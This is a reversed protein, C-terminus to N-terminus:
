VVRVNWSRLAPALLGQTLPLPAGHALSRIGRSFVAVSPRDTFRSRYLLGDVSPMNTHVFEAFYQGDAHNSYNAVDSPVGYRSANGATLDLLTVAEDTVTSINVAIRSVYDSPSLVRAPDLDFRDRILTEYAATALDAAAYIVRFPPNAPGAPGASPVSSFRSPGSSAGLPRDAIRRHMVRVYNSIPRVTTLGAFLAAVALRRSPDLTPLADATM